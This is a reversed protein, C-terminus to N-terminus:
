IFQCVKTQIRNYTQIFKVPISKKRVKSLIDHTITLLADDTKGGGSGASGGQTLLVNDFLQKTEQLEKSIDVNDHMGFVEPLQNQPLNQPVSYTRSKSMSIKIKKKSSVSM